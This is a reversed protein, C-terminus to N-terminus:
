FDYKLSLWYNRSPLIRKYQNTYSQNSNFIIPDWFNTDLLNNIAFTASLGFDFKYSLSLDLIQYDRYFKGIAGRVLNNGATTNNPAPIPTPTQFKGSWRLFAEFGGIRYSPKIVFSHRPILNLPEGKYYDNLSTAGNRQSSSLIETYTFAYSMDLGIGYYIPKLKFALEAGTILSKDVNLM